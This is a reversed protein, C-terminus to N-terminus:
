TYGDLLNAQIKLPPFIKISKSSTDQTIEEAHHFDGIKRWAFAHVGKRYKEVLASFAADDGLLIKRILLVDDDVM